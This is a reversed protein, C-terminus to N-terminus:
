CREESSPAVRQPSHDQLLRYLCLLGAVSSVFFAVVVEIMFLAYGGRGDTPWLHFEQLVAAASVIFLMVLFTALASLVSLALKRFLVM